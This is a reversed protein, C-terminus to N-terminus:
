LKEYKKFMKYYYIQLKHIYPYLEMDKILMNTYYINRRKVSTNTNGGMEKQTHIYM